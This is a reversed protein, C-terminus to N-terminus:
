GPHHERGLVGSGRRRAVARARGVDAPQGDGPVDPVALDELRHLRLAVLEWGGARWLARFAEVPDRTGTVDVIERERLAEVVLPTAPPPMAAVHLPRGEMQTAAGVITGKDHLSILTVAQREGRLAADAATLHM